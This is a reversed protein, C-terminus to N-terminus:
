AGLEYMVLVIGVIAATETRLTNPGVRVTRWGKETALAVERPSFGGEPGVFLGVSEPKNHERLVQKMHQSSEAEWLMLSLDAERAYELAADFDLPPQIEVLRPRKCQKAAEDAIRQWRQVRKREAMNDPKPVSRECNVPVVRNVGIETGKQVITDMKNSKPLGQFLTIHPPTAPVFCCELIHAVLHSTNTAGLSVVYRNGQGDFVLVSDGASLRCVRILHHRESDPIHIVPSVIHSPLVYCAHM